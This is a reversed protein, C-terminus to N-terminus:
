SSRVYRYHAVAPSSEVSVCTFELPVGELGDFLRSGGGLLVPAVHIEMEDVLGARLFQQITSPGGHLAVDKTGASSSAREFAAEPGDTIFHFTTGGEMELPERAHHTLVFVPTRFPPDDGWWGRWPDNGWPGRDPGFMNRGMVYAGVNESSAAVRDDDLGTEGGGGDTGHAERFSQTGVAWLHLGEGGEGLPNERSQSPGAAYGDLSISINVRLKTM